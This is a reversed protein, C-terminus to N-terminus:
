TSSREVLTVPLTHEKDVPEGNIQKLLLEVALRSMEKIPQRITTLAPNSLEAFSIDDYGILKLDDPISIGRATALKIINMAIIDSSAFIGDLHKHNDFLSSLIANYSSRDFSDAGLQIIVPEINHARLTDRFAETRKNSLLDLSLDGSIHAVSRCGKRILLEAALKGGQYNDSSVYPIDAIKRDFTVIPKNLNLYEEVELTHSGMIVGDVRNSKLMDIYEKEKTQEMRSNCVLLKYGFSSAYQEIENAMESFFPHAITPIIMGLMMSRKRTLSRAIENPQYNLEAMALQVKQRTRESIYGRNNLVRSVTTVTVGAKEAVDKITPM